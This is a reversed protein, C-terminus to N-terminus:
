ELSLLTNGQTTLLCCRVSPSMYHCGVPHWNLYHCVPPQLQGRSRYQISTLWVSVMKLFISCCIFAAILASLFQDDPFVCTTVLSPTDVTYRWPLLIAITSSVERVINSPPQCDFVVLDRRFARQESNQIAPSPTNWFSKRQYTRLNVPAILPLFTYVVSSKQLPYTNAQTM